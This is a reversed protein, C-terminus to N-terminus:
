SAITPHAIQESNVFEFHCHDGWALYSLQYLVQYICIDEVCGVCFVKHSDTHGQKLESIRCLVDSMDIRRDWRCSTSISVRGALQHLALKNVMRGQILM